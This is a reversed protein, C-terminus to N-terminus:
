EVVLFGSSEEQGSRREVVWGDISYTVKRYVRTLLWHLVKLDHLNPTTALLETLDAPLPLMRREWPPKSILDPPLMPPKAEHPREYEVRKGQCMEALILIEETARQGTESLMGGGLRTVSYMRQLRALEVLLPQMWPVMTIKGRSQHYRLIDKLTQLYPEIICHDSPAKSQQRLVDEKVEYVGLMETLSRLVEKCKGPVRAWVGHLRTVRPDALGMLIAGAGHLDRLSYLLVYAVGVLTQISSARIADESVEIDSSQASRSSQSGLKFSVPGVVANIVITELYSAFDLMRGIGVMSKGASFPDLAEEDEQVLDDHGWRSAEFGTLDGRIHHLTEFLSVNVRAIELALREAPLGWVSWGAGDAFSLTGSLTNELATYGWGSSNSVEDIANQTEVVKRAALSEDESLKRIRVLSSEDDASNAIAVTRLMRANNLDAQQKHLRIFLPSVQIRVM